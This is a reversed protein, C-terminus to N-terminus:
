QVMKRKPRKIVILIALIAIIILLAIIMPLYPDPAPVEGGLGDNIAAAVPTTGFMDVILNAWDDFGVLTDSTSSTTCGASTIQNIDPAPSSPNQTGGGANNWDIPELPLGGSGSSMDNYSSGTTSGYVIPQAAAYEGGIIVGNPENLSTETLTPLAERSYDLPRTSPFLKSFQRSYSMVSLYNPKCQTNDDGGHRLGLNHGLEHMFTGAQEDTTGVGGAWNGLTIDIDNGPTRAGSTAPGESSGSAGGIQSHTFIVYHFAERKATLMDKVFSDTGTREAATGFQAKKLNDWATNAANGPSPPAILDAHYDIEEDVLVHLQIGQATFSDVVNQIATTDPRHGKLFDVEVYIDKTGIVPCPNWTSPCAWKYEASGRIIKLGNYLPSSVKWENCLGDSSTKASCSPVVYDAQRSAPPVAPASNYGTPQVGTTGTATESPTTVKVTIQETPPAPATTSVRIQPKVTNSCEPSATTCLYVYTTALKYDLTGAIKNFNLNIGAPYAVSKINVTIPDMLPDSTCRVTIAM